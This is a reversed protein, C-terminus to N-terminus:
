AAVLKRSRRAATEAARLTRRGAKTRRPDQKRLYHRWRPRVAPGVGPHDAVSRFTARVADSALRFAKVFADVEVKLLVALESMANM